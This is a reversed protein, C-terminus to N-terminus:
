DTFTDEFYDEEVEIVAKLRCSKGSIELKRIIREAGRVSESENAFEEILEEIEHIEDKTLKIKQGGIILKLKLLDYM